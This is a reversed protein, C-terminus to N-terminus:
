ICGAEFDRVSETHAIALKVTAPYRVAMATERL